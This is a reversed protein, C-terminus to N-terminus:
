RGRKAEQVAEVLDRTTEVPDGATGVSSVVAVGVAGASIVEGANGADIGGVGVVPLRTAQVTAELGQLGIPEAEPKTRTEWVTVGLYDAGAAEAAAVDDPGRVSVGLVREPGIRDRAREVDDGQGVHAGGADSAVAVDIRNNVVFMVRESTCRDSLVMALPLLEADDLEPARLQVAGAGGRIAAEAVERHGRKPVLGSSTIM